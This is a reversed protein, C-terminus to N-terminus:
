IFFRASFRVPPATVAYPIMSRHKSCVGTVTERTGGIATISRLEAPSVTVSGATIRKEREDGDMTYGLRVPFTLEQNTAEDAFESPTTAAIDKAYLVSPPM